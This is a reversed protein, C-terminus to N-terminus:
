TTDACVHQTQKKKKGLLLRCVLNTLSQLESTHEESGEERALYVVGMGGRGLEEIIEYGPLRLWTGIQEGGVSHTAGLVGQGAASIPLADHLSLTYIDTPATHNFSSLLPRVDISAVTLL